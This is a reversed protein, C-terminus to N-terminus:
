GWGLVEGLCGCVALVKESVVSWQGSVVARM